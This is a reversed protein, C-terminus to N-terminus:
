RTRLSFLRWLGGGDKKAEYLAVDAQHLLLEANVGEVDRSSCVAIGISAGVCVEHGGLAYPASVSCIVREAVETAREETVNGDSLLVAFEDGGLRAAFDQERLCHGVRGAVSQLLADGAAHGLRDNVSKFGDLDLYLLALSQATDTVTRHDEWAQNGRLHLFACALSEAFRGRNLLGTLPDHHAMHRIRAEARVRQTIDDFTAVWGGGPIPEHHIAHVRGDRLKVETNVIRDALGIRDRWAAYEEPPMEPGTGAGYRVDVVDRLTMGTRLQSPDLDYMEAYRRNFLVLRQAGDFVCLGQRILDLALDRLDIQCFIPAPSSSTMPCTQGDGEMPVRGDVVRLAAPSSRMHLGNIM